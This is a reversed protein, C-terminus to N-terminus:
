TTDRAKGCLSIGPMETVWKNLTEAIGPLVDTLQMTHEKFEPRRALQDAELLAVDCGVDVNLRADGHKAFRRSLAAADAPDSFAAHIQEQLWQSREKAKYSGLKVQKALM